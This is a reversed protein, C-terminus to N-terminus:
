RRPAEVDLRVMLERANRPAHADGDNDFYVYVDRAGRSPPRRDTIRDADEPEGGSAWTRVREAWGDLRSEGYNSAYTHPSGHLRVYIWRATVEETYPWDGSDAFVLAVDRARCMEVVRENLFDEHRLELAHRVPRNRHVVMSARGTVREDHKRALAAAAEADEPLLDLFAELRELGWTMGPLQWLIPGLKDELRLLGSALFNALPAKVDKLKRSHTIFRSGKVAFVFGEPSADRYRTYAKPTLLSYFSGNIELSNFCGTVHELERKRPLGEPYFAGRRWHDYTWGSVGVRLEAVRRGKPRDRTRRAGRGEWPPDKEKPLWAVEQDDRGAGGELARM